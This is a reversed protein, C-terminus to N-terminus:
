QQSQLTQRVAGTAKDVLKSALELEQTYRYVGAQLALLEEHSFVRGARAARMARDISEEGRSISRAADRLMATLDAEDAELVEAFRGTGRTRARPGEPVAGAAGPGGTREIPDGM